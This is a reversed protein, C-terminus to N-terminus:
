SRQMGQLLAPPFSVAKQAKFDFCVLGTRAERASAYDSLARRLGPERDLLRVVEFLEDGVTAAVDADAVVETLRDRAEAFAVRSAGRM